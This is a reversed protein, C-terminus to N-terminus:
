AVSTCKIENATNNFHRELDKYRLSENLTKVSHKLDSLYNM